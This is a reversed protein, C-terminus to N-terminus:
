VGEEPPPEEPPPEEGPVQEGEQGAQAPIPEPMPSIDSPGELDVLGNKIDDLFLMVCFTELSAFDGDMARFRLLRNVTQKKILDRNITYDLDDYSKKKNIVDMLFKNVAYLQFDEPPDVPKKEPDTGHIPIIEIYTSDILDLMSDWPIDGAPEKLGANFRVINTLLSGVFEAMHFMQSEFKTDRLQDLAVVAAASRLATFDLSIEQVGAIELMIAKLQQIEAGLTPNLPIPDIQGIMKTVDAVAGSLVLVEGSKNTLNKIVADVDGATSIVPVTGKYNSYVTSLKASFKNIQRQLPWLLDFLSTTFTRKIGLDWSFTELLVNDFPYATLPGCTGEIMVFKKKQFCDIYLYLRIHPRNNTLRTLTDKDFGEVYPGLSAVPFAEDRILVRKLERKEFEAEYLGLEFDNIKRVKKSWPDMFVHSYGLIAADHFVETVIHEL